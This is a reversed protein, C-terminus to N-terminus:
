EGSGKGAARRIAVALENTGRKSVRAFVEHGSPGSGERASFVIVRCAPAAAEIVDILDEGSADPLVDDLVIVDPDITTLAAALEAGSGATAVDFGEAQLLISAVTVIMPDDDCVLAHRLQAM